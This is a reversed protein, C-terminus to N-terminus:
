YWSRDLYRRALTQREFGRSERKREPAQQRRQALGQTSPGNLQVEVRGIRVQVTPKGSERGGESESLRVLADNAARPTPNLADRTRESQEGSPQELIQRRITSAPEDSKFMIANSETPHAVVGAPRPSENVPSDNRSSHKSETLRTQAGAPERRFSIFDSADGLENGFSAAAVPWQEPSPAPEVQPKTARDDIPLYDVSFTNAAARRNESSPDSQADPSPENLSRAVAADRPAIGSFRHIAAPIPPSSPKLDAVRKEIAAISSDPTAEADLQGNTAIEEGPTEEQVERETFGAFDARGRQEFASRPSM